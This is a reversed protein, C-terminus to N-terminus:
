FPLDFGCVEDVYTAADRIEPEQLRQRFETAVADVDGGASAISSNLTEALTDISQGLQEDQAENAITEMETFGESVQSLTEGFGMADPDLDSFEDVVDQFRQCTVEPPDGDKTLNEGAGCGSLVLLASAVPVIPLLKRLSMSNALRKSATLFTESKHDCM